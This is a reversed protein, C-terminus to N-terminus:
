CKDFWQPSTAKEWICMKHRQGEVLLMKTDESKEHKDAMICMWMKLQIRYHELHVGVKNFQKQTSKKIPVALTQLECKLRYFNQAM